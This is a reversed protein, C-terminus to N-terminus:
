LNMLQANRRNTAEDRSAKSERRKLVEERDDAARIRLALEKRQADFEDQMQIIQVELHERKSELTSVARQKQAEIMEFETRFDDIQEKLTDRTAALSDIREQLQQITSQLPSIKENLDDIQAVVAARDVALKNLEGKKFFITDIVESLSRRQSDVQSDLGVMATQAEIKTRELDEIESKLTAERAVL